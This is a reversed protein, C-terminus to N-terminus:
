FPLPGDEAEATAAPTAPAAPASGQDKKKDVSLSLYKKGDKKSVESWASVYYDTGDVNLKGKLDPHRDTTKESQFLAGRNTNDYETM